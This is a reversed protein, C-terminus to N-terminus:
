EDFNCDITKTPKIYKCDKTEFNGTRFINKIDITRNQSEMRLITKEKYLINKFSLFDNIDYNFNCNDIKNLEIINSNNYLGYNINNAFLCFKINLKICSKKAEAISSYSEESVEDSVCIKINQKNKISGFIDTGKFKFINIYELKGCSSFMNGVFFVNEININFNSLDLSILNSCEYFMYFMNEVIATNFNSLDLSILSSCGYFMSDMDNVNATNFNSLDLSILSSCGNFMFDMYNVNATNFNSLDLSIINECYKFMEKTSNGIDEFTIEIKYEGAATLHIKNSTPKSTANNDVKIEQPQKVNNYFDENLYPYGGGRTVKIIMKVIYSIKRLFLKKGKFKIYHINKKQNINKIIFNNIQLNENLEINNYENISQVFDKKTNLCYNNNLKNIRNKNKIIIDKININEIFLISKKENIKILLKKKDKLNIYKIYNINEKLQFNNDILNYLRNEINYKKTNFDVIKINYPLNM